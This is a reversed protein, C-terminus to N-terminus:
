KRAPDCCPPGPRSSAAGSQRTPQLAERTASIWADSDEVPGARASAQAVGVWAAVRSPRVEVSVVLDWGELQCSVLRGGNAQVLDAARECAAPEGAVAFVAGGLVGLDAASQARHRAVIAAGVAAALAALMIAVLGAALTWVTASGKDHRGNHVRTQRSHVSM